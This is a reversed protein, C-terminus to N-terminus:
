AGQTAAWMLRVSVALGEVMFVDPQDAATEFVGFISLKKPSDM